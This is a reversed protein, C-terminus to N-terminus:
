NMPGVSPQSAQRFTPAPRNASGASMTACTLSSSWDDFRLRYIATHAIKEAILDDKLSESRKRGPSRGPTPHGFIPSKLFKIGFVYYFEFTWYGKPWSERIEAWAKPDYDGYAVRVWNRKRLDDDKPITASQQIKIAETLVREALDQAALPPRRFGCTLHGQEPYFASKLRTPDSSRENALEWIHVPISQSRYRRERREIREPTAANTRLILRLIYDATTEVHGSAAHRILTDFNATKDRSQLLLMAESPSRGAPRGM